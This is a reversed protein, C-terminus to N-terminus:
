AVCVSVDFAFGVGDRQASWLWMEDRGELSGEEKSLRLRVRGMGISWGRRGVGM